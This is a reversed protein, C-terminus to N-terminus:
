PAVLTEVQALKDQLYDILITRAESFTHLDSEPLGQMTFGLMNAQKVDYAISSNYPYIKTVDVAKISATAFVVYYAREGVSFKTTINM